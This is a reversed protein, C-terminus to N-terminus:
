GTSYEQSKYTLHQVGEPADAIKRIGGWTQKYNPIILENVGPSVVNGQVGNPNAFLMFTQKRKATATPYVIAQTSGNDNYIEVLDGQKIGLEKMDDLNMQIFPYPFRDTVFENDQDLYASQWTVNARGNNILFPFKKMEAEKGPAQLGRWQTEMFKAKGDKSSFKGDTYLRKTGIIREAGAAAGTTTGTPTGAAAAGTELGVAPEQFGNTGMARLRAYTVFEGGKEHQHYGDMFADEETKWDFGKFRDAVDNKGMARFVRELHNAVRAAILCEPMARGPPDMYRETLRMRRAGNMSTLNMEGSTAAPLWVHCAQGIKTPVIDVDVAFLGGKKIAGVIANVMAPRDGYPVASMADKVLDTRKKYVQKFRLANLTTKYHDCAWIHHVGGKNEILLKDVYAAPRGVHADSPRSYGEQHGGMRVCGGGPRGINGTALAVNVLAGNTRYNDNGWILGKEYAFMTRRRAGGTKPQAIWEASQRIQDATLGTIQAAEELSTTNAAVAKDFDKTSTAIFAKDTWDKEAIYTLWANFLALDTGSNIALHMVRDKGAEVECANVTVTRRPDVIVIRCQEVPEAGFEATKKNTSTGRLNPVWHNLFYNTQTELANTGVAVITDALEADEYCNNLEGVGMDRTAHVESNYAPRNHIRINKVKMAGFYLKGTGWTNEYGGGAGGHDFASVFVGDEGMDNIVAITVRAVLDLADDCSTPQMQGYRWVRPDTLRQRQTDRARSYSMEAMRAGRVSGLGSNVVCEKDPKIVIHVDEGNQRVINYMSPSYWAGTDAPQQRSLDVGFKNLSAATAGQKSVPWTYAKYGCGVICYHCTVNFEKADKPVIPLRDIQRKYAM